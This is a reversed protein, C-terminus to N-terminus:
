ADESVEGTKASVVIIGDRILDDLFQPMIRLWNCLASETFFKGMFKYGGDLITSDRTIHHLRAHFGAGEFAKIASVMKENVPDFVRVLMQNDPTMSYLMHENSNEVLIKAKILPDKTVLKMDEGMEEESEAIQTADSAEWDETWSVSETPQNAAIMMAEHENDAEVMICGTRTITVDFIPM